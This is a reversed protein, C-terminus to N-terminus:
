LSVAVEPRDRWLEGIQFKDRGSALAHYNVQADDTLSRYNTAHTSDAAEGRKPNLFHQDLSTARRVGCLYSSLARILYQLFTQPHKEVKQASREHSPRSFPRVKTFTLHRHKMRRNPGAKVCLFSSDHYPWRRFPFSLVSPSWPMTLRLLIIAAKPCKGPM